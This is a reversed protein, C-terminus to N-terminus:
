SPRSRRGLVIGLLAAPVVFAFLPALSSPSDRESPEPRAAAALLEDVRGDLSILDREVAGIRGRLSEPRHGLVISNLRVRVSRIRASLMDKMTRMRGDEVDAAVILEAGMLDGLPKTCPDNCFTLWYRGPEVQPLVFEFSADGYQGTPRPEVDLPAVNLSGRPLPPPIRKTMESLYVFYPGDELRGMSSKLWVGSRGSVVEGALYFDHRLDLIVGGASAPAPFAGLLLMGLIAFSAKRM